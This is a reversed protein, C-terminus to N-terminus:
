RNSEYYANADIASSLRIYFVLIVRWSTIRAACLNTYWLLYQTPAVRGQAIKKAIASNRQRNGLFSECEDLSRPGVHQAAAGADVPKSEDPKPWECLPIVKEQSARADYVFHHKFTLKARQVDEAYTQSVIRTARAHTLPPRYSAPTVCCLCACRPTTAAIEM